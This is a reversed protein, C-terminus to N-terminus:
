KQLWIKAVEWNILDTEVEDYDLLIHPPTEQLHLDALNLSVKGSEGKRGLGAKGDRGYVSSTAIHSTRSTHQPPHSPIMLAIQMCM